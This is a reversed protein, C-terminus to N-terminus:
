TRKGRALVKGPEERQTLEDIRKELAAIRRQEESATFDVLQKEVASIRSILPDIQAKVIGALELGLAKADIM